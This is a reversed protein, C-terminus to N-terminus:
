IVLPAIHRLVLCFKMLNNLFFFLLLLMVRLGELISFRRNDQIIIVILVVKCPPILRTLGLASESEM